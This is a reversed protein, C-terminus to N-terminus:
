SFQVYLVDDTPINNIYARYSVVYRNLEENAYEFLRAYEFIYYSDLRETITSGYIEDLILDATNKLGAESFDNVIKPQNELENVSIYIFKIFDINNFVEIHLKEDVNYVDYDRNKLFESSDDTYRMSQTYDASYEIGNITLLRKNKIQDNDIIETPIPYLLGSKEYESYDSDDYGLVPCRIVGSGNDEGSNIDTSTSETPVSDSRSSASLTIAAIVTIFALVAAALIFPKRIRFAKKASLTDRNEDYRKEATETILEEDIDNAANFIDLDNIKKNM